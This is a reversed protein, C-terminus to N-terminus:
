WYGAAGAVCVAALVDVANRNRYLFVSFSNKGNRYAKPPINPTAGCGEIQRRIAESDSGKDGHLVRM